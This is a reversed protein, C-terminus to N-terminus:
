KSRLYHKFLGRFSYVSLRIITGFININQNNYIVYFQRRLEKSKNSSLSKDQLRYLANYKSVNKAVYGCKLISLWYVYDEKPSDIFRIKNSKIIDKNIVVTLCGIPCYYTLNNYDIEHPANYEYKNGSSDFMYYNSFTFVENNDIMFDLHDKLKNELWIDDSDLFAIFDGFSKNIGSQRAGSAGKNLTNSILKIRNDNYSNIIDLSSDTSGDDIIILEFFPYTQNLVSDISEKITKGSNFVPMIVSVIKDM